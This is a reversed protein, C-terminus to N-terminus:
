EPAGCSGVGSISVIFHLSEVEYGDMEIEGGLLPWPHIATLFFCSLSASHGFFPM